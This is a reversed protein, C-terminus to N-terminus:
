ATLASLAALFHRGQASMRLEGNSYQSTLSFDGATVASALHAPDTTFAYANVVGLMIPATINHYTVTCDAHPWGFGGDACQQGVIHDAAPQLVALGSAKGNETGAPIATVIKVAPSGQGADFSRAVPHPTGAGVQGVCLLVLSGLVVMGIKTTTSVRM